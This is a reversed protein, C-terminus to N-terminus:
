RQLEALRSLARAPVRSEPLAAAMDRYYEAMPEHLGARAMQDLQYMGAPNITQARRWIRMADDRAEARAAATAIRALWDPQENTGLRLAATPYLAEAEQWNGLDLWSEFLTFNAQRRLEEDKASEAASKLLAISRAPDNMRNLIWGLTFSRSADKGDCLTEARTVFRDRTNRPSRKLMRWLLREETAGWTPRNGLWRWLVDDSTDVEDPFEHGLMRAAQLSSATDAPAEALENRLLDIAQSKRKDRDLLGAYQMLAQARLDAPRKGRMPLAPTTAALSKKLAAEEKVADKRGRYYRARELWYNPDNESLKEQIVIRDEIVDSGSAAQVQGAIYAPRALHHEEAINDAEVIWKQAEDAKELKLLCEALERRLGAAIMARMSSDSPTAQRQEGAEQIEEDTLPLGIATEFFTAAASWRELQKLGSALRQADTARKPKVISTMWSLNHEAVEGYAGPRAALLSDLLTIARAIDGPNKRIGAEMQELLADGINQAVAFRVREKIWFDNKGAPRAAFWADIEAASTGNARWHKLLRNDLTVDDVEDAYLELLRRATPWANFQDGANYYIAKIQDLGLTPCTAKLQNLSKDAEDLLLGRLMVSLRIMAEQGVTANTTMTKRAFTAFDVDPERLKETVAQQVIWWDPEDAVLVSPSATILTFVIIAACRITM